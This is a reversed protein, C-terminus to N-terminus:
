DANQAEKLLELGYKLIKKRMAADAAAYAAANAATKNEKSPNNVCKKVAEEIEINTM